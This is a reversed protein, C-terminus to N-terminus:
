DSGSLVPKSRRGQLLSMYVAEFDSVGTTAMDAMERLAQSAMTASVADYSRLRRVLVGLKLPADFTSQSFNGSRYRELNEPTVLEGLGKPDGPLLACGAALCELASRGSAIAIDFDRAVAPLNEVRRFYRPGVATLKLGLIRAALTALVLLRRGRKQQGVLLLRRPRDPLPASRPAFRSLDVYNGLVQEPEVGLRRAIKRNMRPTVGCTRAIQPVPLAFDEPVFRHWQLLMPVDPFRAALDQALCLDNLHIVDPRPGLQDPEVVQLGEDLRLEEALPGLSPATLIVDHGRAKLARGLDRAALETGTRKALRENAIVIRM